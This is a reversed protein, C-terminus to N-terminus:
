GESHVIRDIPINDKFWTIRPNPNGIAECFVSFKDGIRAIYREPSSKTDSTFNPLRLFKNSSMALSKDDVGMRTREPM